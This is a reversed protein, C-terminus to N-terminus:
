SAGTTFSTTTAVGTTGGLADAATADVTVDITANPPWNTQPTVVLVTPTGNADPGITIAQPVNLVSVRVHDNIAAGPLNNFTITIPEMGPAAPPPGGDVGGGDSADGVPVDISAAFLATQFTLQGDALAGEGTFPQGAKSRIKSKNLMVTITSGSPFTPSATTAISPGLPFILGIEGGNPTYISTLTLAPPTPGPTVSISVLDTAGFDTAGDLSTISTPDLLRDFLASLHVFGTISLAAGDATVDLSGGTLNDVVSLSKLVPPGPKVGNNVDCGGLGLLALSGLLVEPSFRWFLRKM